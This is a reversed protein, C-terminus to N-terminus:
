PLQEIIQHTSFNLFNSPHALVNQLIFPTDPTTGSYQTNGDMNIDENHYGTVTYTPFNLFNGPANLVLSLISPSDPTTGSYQVVTDGNANGAWMAIKNASMGFTTQANNGYTIQNTADTFDIPVLNESLSVTNATTVGLHNRHKIAIYYDGHPQNFSLSSTGDVAVIDGDRQLLASTGDVIVTNDTASRLEVYIWDVIANAGTTNFVSANCSLMDSYPSTTPIYSNARLNDRMLHEEGTNPNLAAGQLMVKPAIKTGFGVWEHSTVEWGKTVTLGETPKIDLLLNNKFVIKGTRNEIYCLVPNGNEIIKTGNDDYAQFTWFHKIYNGNIKNNEINPGNTFFDTSSNKFYYKTLNDTGTLTFEFDEWLEDLRSEQKISFYVNTNIETHDNVTEKTVDYGQGTINNYTVTHTWYTTDDGELYVIEGDLGPTGTPDSNVYYKDIPNGSLTSGIEILRNQLPDIKFEIVEGNHRKGSTKLVLNSLTTNSRKNNLGNTSYFPNLRVYDDQVTLTINGNVYAGNGWDIGGFRTPENTIDYLNEIFTPNIIAVNKNTITFQNSQLVDCGVANLDSHDLFYPISYTHFLRIRDKFVGRPAGSNVTAMGNNPHNSDFYPRILRAFGLTNSFKFNNFEVTSGQFGHGLFLNVNASSNFTCNEFILNTNETFYTQYLPNNYHFAWPLKDTTDVNDLYHLTGNPVIPFIHRDLMLTTGFDTRKFQVVVGEKLFRILTANYSDNDSIFDSNYVDVIRFKFNNGSGSTLSNLYLFEGTIETNTLELNGFIRRAKITSGFIKLVGRTADAIIRNDGAQSYNEFQLGTGLITSTRITSFLPKRDPVISGAYQDSFAYYRWHGFESTVDEIDFAVDQHVYNPHGYTKVWSPNQNTHTPLVLSNFDNHFQITITHNSGNALTTNSVDLEYGNLITAFAPDNLHFQYFPGGDISVGMTRSPAVYDYWSFDITNMPKLKGNVIEFNNFQWRGGDNETYIGETTFDRGREGLYHGSYDVRLKKIFIQSGGGFQSIGGNRTRITANPDTNEIFIRQFNANDELGGLVGNFYSNWFADINMMNLDEVLPTTNLLRIDRVSSGAGHSPSLLRTSFFSCQGGWRTTAEDPPICSVDVTINHNSASSTQNNNPLSTAFLAFSIDWNINEACLKIRANNTNRITIARDHPFVLAKNTPELNNCDYFPNVGIIGDQDLTIVGDTNTNMAHQLASYNNTYVYAKTTINQNPTINITAQTGDTSVNTIEATITVIRGPTTFPLVTGVQPDSANHFGKRIAILKGIDANTFTDTSEPTNHITIQNSGPTISVNLYRLDAIIDTCTTNISDLTNANLFLSILCLILTTIKKM